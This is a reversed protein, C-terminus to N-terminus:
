KKNKKSACCYKEIMYDLSIKGPGKIFLSSLLILWILVDSKFDYTLAIVVAMSLLALASIRSLLGILLLSSFVLENFTGLIAAVEPSLLPVKYEHRFLYVTTEWHGNLYNQFKLWGSLFMDKFIFMRFFLDWVSGVYCELFGIVKSYVPCRGMNEQKHM